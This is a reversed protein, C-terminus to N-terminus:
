DKTDEKKTEEIIGCEKLISEVVYVTEKEHLM